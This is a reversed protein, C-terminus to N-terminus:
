INAHSSNLRTSKRDTGDGLPHKGTAPDCGSNASEEGGAARLGALIPLARVIAGHLRQSGNSGRYEQKPKHKQERPSGVQKRKLQMAPVVECEAFVYCRSRRGRGGLTARDRGRKRALNFM